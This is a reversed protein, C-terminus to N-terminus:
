NPNKETSYPGINEGCMCDTPLGVAGGWTIFSTAFVRAIKPAETYFM